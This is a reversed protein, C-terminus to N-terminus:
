GGVPRAGGPEIDDDWAPRWPPFDPDPGAEDAAEQEADVQARLAKAKRRLSELDPQGRHWDCAEILEDLEDDTVALSHVRPTM